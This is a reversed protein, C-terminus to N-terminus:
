VVLCMKSYKFFSPLVWIARLQTPTRLYRAHILRLSPKLHTRATSYALSAGVGSAWLGGTVGM